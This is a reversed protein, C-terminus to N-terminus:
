SGEDETEEDPADVRWGERERVKAKYVGPDYRFESLETLIQDVEDSVIASVEPATKAAAADVAVRGPLALLSSRVANVLALTCDEVDEASHMRGELEALLLQEQDAKARKYDAEAKLKRQEDTAEDETRNRVSDVAFRIYSQVNAAIDYKAPKGDGVLVGQDRLQYVRQFSLGLIEALRKAGVGEPATDKAAAM